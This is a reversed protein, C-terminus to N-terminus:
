YFKKVNSKVLARLEGGLGSCLLNSPSALAHGHPEIGYTFKKNSKNTKNINVEFNLL